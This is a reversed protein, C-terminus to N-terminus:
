KQRVLVFAGKFALGGRGAGDGVAGDAADAFCVRLLLSDQGLPGPKSKVGYPHM